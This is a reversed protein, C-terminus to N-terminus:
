PEARFRIGYDDQLIQVLRDFDEVVHSPPHRGVQDAYKGDGRRLCTILGAEHAADVDKVPSDGVYMAEGPEIGLHECAVVFIRPHPKAAGIDESIFIADPSFANSLGLRVLKEAQKVTLGNSVVGRVLETTKLEELARAVDPFPDLHRKTAHYAQVGSAIVIARHVGKELRDGLRLILQDFHRDYNSTFELVVEELESYAEEVEVDLGAAVMAEVASRRAREAFVSTPFLTDDIDFLVARLTM